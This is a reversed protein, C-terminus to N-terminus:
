AAFCAALHGGVEQIGIHNQPEERLVVRPAGLSGFGEELPGFGSFERQFTIISLLPLVDGINEQPQDRARTNFRLATRDENIGQEVVVCEITALQTQGVRSLGIRSAVTKCPPTPLTAIRCPPRINM